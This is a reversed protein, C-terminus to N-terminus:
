MRELMFSAEALPLRATSAFAMRMVPLVGSSMTLPPTLSPWIAPTDRSQILAGPSFEIAVPLPIQGDIGKAETWHVNIGRGVVREVCERIGIEGKRWVKGAM